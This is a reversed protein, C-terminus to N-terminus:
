VGYHLWDQPPSLPAANFQGGQEESLMAQPYSFQRTAQALSLRVLDEKLAGRIVPLGSVIRAHAGVQLSRLTLPPRDDEPPTSSHWRTSAHAPETSGPLLVCTGAPLPLVPASVTTNEPWLYEGPRAPGVSERGVRFAWEWSPIFSVPLSLGAERLWAAWPQEGLTADVAFYLQNPEANVTQVSRLIVELLPKWDLAAANGSQGRLKDQHIVRTAPGQVILSYRGQAAEGRLVLSILVSGALEPRERIEAAVSWLEVQRQHELQQMQRPDAVLAQVLPSPHKRSHLHRLALSRLEPPLVRLVTVERDHLTEHLLFLQEPDVIAEPELKSWAARLARTWEAWIEPDRLFPMRRQSQRLTQAYGLVREASAPLHPLLRALTTLRHYRTALAAASQLLDHQKKLAYSQAKRAIWSLAGLPHHLVVGAQRLVAWDPDTEVERMLQSNAADDRDLFQRAAAQGGESAPPDGPFPLDDFAVRWAPPAMLGAEMLTLAAVRCRQQLPEPLQPPLLHLALTTLRAAQDADGALRATAAAGLLIELEMGRAPSHAPRADRLLMWATFHWAALSSASGTDTTMQHQVLTHIALALRRTLQAQTIPWVYGNEWFGQDPKRGLKWDPQATKLLTELESWLAAEGPKLFSRALWLLLASAHPATAIPALAQRGTGLRQQLAQLLPEKKASAALAPSQLLEPVLALTGWVIVADQAKMARTALDLPDQRRPPPFDRATLERWLQYDLRPGHQADLKQWHERLSGRAPKGPQSSLWQDHAQIVMGLPVTPAAPRAPPQPKRPRRPANM